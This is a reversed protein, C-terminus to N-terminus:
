KATATATDCDNATDVDGAVNVCATFEITDGAAFAGSAYNWTAKLRKSSGPGLTVPLGAVSVTGTATGNVTVSTTIDAATITIPTTGDNSVKFVFSKSTKRTSPGVPGNVIVESAADIMPPASVNIM